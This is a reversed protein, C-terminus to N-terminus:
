DLAALLLASLYLGIGFVLHTGLNRARGAWPQATKSGAIGAGFAPQMVFWPAVITGLGVALPAPATPSEAWDLGASALLLLAFAIGITYHAAWGLLAEGSVPSAAGIREHFFRGKPFHGIWRGLMRYDLTAIHFTRRLFFSWADMMAAGAGGMLLARMLLELQENM